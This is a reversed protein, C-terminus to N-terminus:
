TIPTSQYSGPCALSANRRGKHNGDLLLKKVGGTTGSTYIIHGGFPIVNSEILPLEGSHINAYIARPVTLVNIGALIKAELKHSSLESQTVVVFAVNRLKLEEAEEIT